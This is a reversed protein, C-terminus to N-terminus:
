AIVARALARRLHAIRERYVEEPQRDGRKPPDGMEVHWKRFALGTETQFLARAL